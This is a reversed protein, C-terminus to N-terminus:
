RTKSLFRKIIENEEGNRVTQLRTSVKKYDLGLLECVWPFSYQQSSEEDAFIWEEAERAEQKNTGCYDLVARKVLAVLLKREPKPLTNLSESAGHM